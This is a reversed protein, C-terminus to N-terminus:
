SQMIKVYFYFVPATFLLSDMIDLAGGIGPLYSGADKAGCDRKILSEALDGVQGLVALVVGLIFLHVFSFNTLIRGLTLAIVASVVIGGITGEKTKKPSIRPILETRGICSGIVYAGIDASKTILILFATLNSGNDLLKIKVFFSFFWAIYFLSFLTLATGTLHDKANDRRTFQLVFTVLCAAVILLPDLNKLSPLKDGIFIVIPIGCGAIIGFYKYVFIKRSEVLRFFDLQGFAIFLVIVLSFIWNPFVYIVVGVISVLILTVITRWAFKNM